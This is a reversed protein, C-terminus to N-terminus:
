KGLCVGDCVYYLSITLKLAGGHFVIIKQFFIIGAVQPMWHPMGTIRLNIRWFDYLPGVARMDGIDIAVTHHIGDASQPTDIQAIGVIHYLVGNGALKILQGIIRGKSARAIGGRDLGRIRHPFKKGVVAHAPHKEGGSPRIRHFGAQSQRPLIM